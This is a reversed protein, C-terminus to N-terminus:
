FPKVSLNLKMVSINPVHTSKQTLAALPSDALERQVGKCEEVELETPAFLKWERRLQAPPCAALQM